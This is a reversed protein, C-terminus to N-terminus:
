SSSIKIGGRTFPAVLWVLEGNSDNDSSSGSTSLSRVKLRMIAMSRFLVSRELSGNRRISKSLPLWGSESNFPANSDEIAVASSADLLSVSM